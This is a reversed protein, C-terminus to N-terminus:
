LSGALSSRLRSDGNKSPVSSKMPHAKTNESLLQEKTDLAEISRGSDSSDLSRAPSPPRLTTHELSMVMQRSEALLRQLRTTPSLPEGEPPFGAVAKMECGRPASGIMSDAPNSIPTPDGNVTVRPPSVGLERCGNGPRPSGRQKWQDTGSSSGVPLVPSALRLSSFDLRGQSGGSGRREREQLREQSSELNLHLLQLDNQQNECVQRLCHLETETREQKSRALELLDEKRREGEGALALENQLLQNEQKLRILDEKQSNNEATKERLDGTLRDAEHRAERLRKRYEQAERMARAERVRCEKVAAELKRFRGSLDIIHNTAETMDKDKLKLMAGLEQERAQLQGVQSSLELMSSNLSQNREQLDQCQTSTLQERQSVDQLRQQTSTLASQRDQHQAELIKIRKTLSRIIDNRKQLESELRACRQELTLVRQRDEEWALLQKQHASVMDNLERDRDKLEVVLLQLEKRQKQITAGEIEGATKQVHKREAVSAPRDDSVQLPSLTQTKAGNGFHLQTPSSSNKALSFSHQKIPTSHWPDM